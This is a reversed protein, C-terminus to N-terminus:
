FVGCQRGSKMAFAGQIKKSSKTWERKKRESGLTLEFRGPATKRFLLNKKDYEIPGGRGPNPLVLKDMKNDSYTLSYTEYPSGNFSLEVAGIASNEPVATPAFGFFVRSLRKMMLQNGPLGPGRNKTINGAEIWFHRCVRLKQLDISKLSGKIPPDSAIDDETPAPSKRKEISEFISTYRALMADTLPAADDWVSAFWDRSLNISQVASPEVDAAHRDIGISLGAEYGRSLGSRSINGSGSLVYDFQPNRLFFTKPHFPVRPTCGQSICFEADHIRVSSNQLSIITELAIPETRCYDFSTLWRQQMEPHEDGLRDKIVKLLDRLGSGTIYAAAVDMEQPPANQLIADLAQATTRTIPQQISDVILM